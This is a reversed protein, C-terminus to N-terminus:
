YEYIESKKAEQQKNITEFTEKSDKDVFEM